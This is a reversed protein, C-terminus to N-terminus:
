SLALQALPVLQHLCDSPTVTGTLRSLLWCRDSEGSDCAVVVFSGSQLPFVCPLKRSAIALVCLAHAGM